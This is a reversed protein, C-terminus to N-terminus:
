VRDYGKSKNISHNLIDIFANIKYPKQVWADLGSRKARVMKERDNESTLLVFPISALSRSGKIKELLEQGGMSPMNYDSLILDIKSYSVSLIELAASGNEAQMTKFGYKELTECIVKRISQFDDVVLITKRSEM